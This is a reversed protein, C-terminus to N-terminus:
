GLPRSSVTTLKDYCAMLVNRIPSVDWMKPSIAPQHNPPPPCRFFHSIWHSFFLCTFPSNFYCHIINQNELYSSAFHCLCPCFHFVLFTSSIKFVEMNLHLSFPFVFSANSTRFDSSSLPLQQLKNVIINILSVFLSYPFWILFAPAKKYRELM